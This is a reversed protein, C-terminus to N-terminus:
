FLHLVFNTDNAVGTSSTFTRVEHQRLNSISPLSTAIRAQDGVTTVQAFRDNATFGFTITYIGESTRSCSISSDDYTWNYTTATTACDGAEDVFVQAKIAGYNTREQIIDGSANIDGAFTGTDVSLDASSSIDSGVITGATIKASTIANNAIDESAITGNVIKASTVANNALDATAVAGNAINGSDVVGTGLLNNVTLDGTVIMDDNVTLERDDDLGAGANEGRWIRGDIRVDDGFTVPMEAGTDVDTTENIITGNFFTVGGYGQAGIRISYARATGLVRLEKDVVLSSAPQLQDTTSASAFGTLAFIGIITLLPLLKKM